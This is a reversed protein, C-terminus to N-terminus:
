IIKTICRKKKVDKRKNNSGSDTIKDCKPEDDNLIEKEKDNIVIGNGKPHM